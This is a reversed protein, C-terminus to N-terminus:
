LCEITPNDAGRKRDAFFGFKIKRITRQLLKKNPLGPERFGGSSHLLWHITGKYIGLVTRTTAPFQLKPRGNFTTFLSWIHVDELAAATVNIAIDM